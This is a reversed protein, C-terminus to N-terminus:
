NGNSVTLRVTTGSPSYKIANTVLNSLAQHLLLRDGRVHTPTTLSSSSPVEIRIQKDAAVPGLVSTMDRLLPAVECDILAIKQRGSEIYAIDLFSQILDGLRRSEEVITALFPKGKDAVLGYKVLMDSYGRISTLPTRLEHSVLSVMDNKAQNLEYE